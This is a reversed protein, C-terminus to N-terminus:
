NLSTHIVNVLKKTIYKKLEPMQLNEAIFRIKEIEKIAKRYEGLKEFCIVRIIPAYFYRQNMLEVNNPDSKLAKGFYLAAFEYNQEEKLLYAINM